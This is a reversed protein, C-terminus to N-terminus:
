ALKSLCEVTSTLGLQKSIEFAKSRTHFSLNNNLSSRIPINPFRRLRSLLKRILLNWSTTSLPWHPPQDDTSDLIQCTEIKPGNRKRIFM